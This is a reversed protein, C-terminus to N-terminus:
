PATDALPTTRETDPKIGGAARVVAEAGLRFAASANAETPFLLADATIQLAERLREASERDAFLGVARFELEIARASM